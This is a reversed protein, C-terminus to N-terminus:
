PVADQQMPEGVFVIANAQKDIAQQIIKAVDKVRPLCLFTDGAELKRTDDCIQTVIMDASYVGLDAILDSLNKPQINLKNM